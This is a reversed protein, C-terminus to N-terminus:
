SYDLSICEWIIEGKKETLLIGGWLTAFAVFMGIWYIYVKDEVDQFLSTIVVGTLVFKSVDILYDSFKEKRSMFAVNQKSKKKM